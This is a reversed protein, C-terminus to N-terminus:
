GHAQAKTKFDRIVMLQAILMEEDDIGLIQMVRDLGAWELGGLMSWAELAMISAPPVPGPTITTLRSRDLWATLKKRHGGEARSVGDM